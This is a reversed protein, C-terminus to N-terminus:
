RLGKLLQELDCLWTVAVARRSGAERIVGLPIQGWGRLCYGEAQVLASTVIAPLRKRTKCEVIWRGDLASVVDPSSVGYLRPVRKGGLAEAAAQETRKWARSM